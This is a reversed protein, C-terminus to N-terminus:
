SRLRLGSADVSAETSTRMSGSARSSAPSRSPSTKGSVVSTAVNSVTGKSSTASYPAHRVEASVMRLAPRQRLVRESQSSRKQRTAWAPVLFGRSMVRARRM